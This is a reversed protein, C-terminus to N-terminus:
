TSSDSDLTSGPSRDLAYVTWTQTEAAPVTARDSNVTGPFKKFMYTSSSHSILPAQIVM